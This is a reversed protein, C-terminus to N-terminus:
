QDADVDTDEREHTMSQMHQPEVRHTDPWSRALRLGAGFPRMGPEAAFRAAGSVDGRPTQFNAGRLMRYRAPAEASRIVDAIDLHESPADFSWADLCWTRVNGAVWRVGHLTVDCTPADVPAPRYQDRSSGAIRTFRPEPDDGWHLRREDTLRALKEYEWESLLRWGGCRGDRACREDYWAAYAMADFWNIACVPWAAMHPAPAGFSTLHFTRGRLEFTPHTPREEGPLMPARARAEDVRGRAVLDDLFEIYGANTIPDRKVIFGDVWVTRGVRPSDASRAEGGLWAPGPAIFCEDPGLTGLPPLPIVPPSGARRQLPPWHEGRHITLPYLVTHHGEASLQLLWRGAEIPLRDLSGEGPIARFSDEGVVWRRRQWIQRAISIRAHPSTRLSLAGLGEILARARGLVPNDDHKGDADRDEFQQLDTRVAELVLRVGREDRARELSLLQDCQWEILELAVDDFEPDVALIARMTQLWQAEGLDVEAEDRRAIEIDAWVQHRATVSEYDCEDLARLASEAQARRARASERLAKGQELRKNALRRPVHSRARRLAHAFATADPYRHAPNGELARQCVAIYATTDYSQHRPHVEVPPPPPAVSSAALRRIHDRDGGYPPRGTLIRYLIAGLAYVDAARSTAGVRGSLREPAMYEPVGPPTGEFTESEDARMALDWDIVRARAMHSPPHPLAGEASLGHWFRWERIQDGGREVRRMEFMLNDPKLDLHVVGARHAAGVGLAAEYFLLLVSPLDVWDLAPRVRGTKPASGEQRPRAVTAQPGDISDFLANIAHLLTGGGEVWDMAVWVSDGERWRCRVPVVTPDNVLAEVAPRALNTLARPATAPMQKLAAPAKLQTDHAHYLVGLGGELIFVRDVFREGQRDSSPPPEGRPSRSVPPDSRGPRHRASPYTRDDRSGSM